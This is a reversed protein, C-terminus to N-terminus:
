RGKPLSYTMLRGLPRRCKMLGARLLTPSISEPGAAYIRLGPYEFACRIPGGSRFESARNKTELGTALRPVHRTKACAGM